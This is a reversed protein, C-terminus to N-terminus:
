EEEDGGAPLSLDVAKDYSRVGNLALAVLRHNGDIVRNPYRSAPATKVVLYGVDPTERYSEVLERQWPEACGEFIDKLTDGNHDKREAYWWVPDITVLGFRQCYFADEDVESALEEGEEPYEDYVDSLRIDNM